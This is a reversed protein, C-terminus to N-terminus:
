PGNAADIVLSVLLLGLLIFPVLFSWVIYDFETRPLDGSVADVLQVSPVHRIRRVVLVATIAAVVVLGIGVVESGAEPMRLGAWAVMITPVILVALLLRTVWM